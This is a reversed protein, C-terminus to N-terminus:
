AGSWLSIAILVLLIAFPIVLWMRSPEYFGMDAAIQRNDAENVKVPKDPEEDDVESTKVEDPEEPEEQIGENDAESTKGEDPEEPQPDM